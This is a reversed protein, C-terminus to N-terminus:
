FLNESQQRLLDIIYAGPKRAGGRKQNAVDASFLFVNELIFVLTPASKTVSVVLSVPVAESASM